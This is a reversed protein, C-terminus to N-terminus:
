EGKIPFALIGSPVALFLNPLPNEELIDKTGSSAPWIRRQRLTESSPIDKIGLARCYFEEDSFMERIADFDSKGQCLLGLYAFIVDSNAIEPEANEKLKTENLRRAFDTKELLLGILSLGSPTILRENGFKVDM